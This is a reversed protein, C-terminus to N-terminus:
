LRILNKPNCVLIQGFYESIISTFFDGKKINKTAFLSRRFILSKKMKAQDMLTKGISKWVNKSECVLQTMQEPILSFADDLARKKSSSKLKFHKEVVQAGLRSFSIACWYRSYSDSIGVPCKFEKKMDKITLINSDSPDSPYNSTCKLLIYNKNRKKKFIEIVNFIEKKTAM